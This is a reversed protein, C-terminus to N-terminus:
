NLPAASHKKVLFIYYLSSLLLAINELVKAIDVKSGAEAAFCGCNIDLGRLYAQQVAIYFMLMLAANIYSTEVPWFGVILLFGLFLELWPLWIALWRSLLPSIMRYNEITQAFLTPHIIKDISAYILIVGFFIRLIHYIWNEVTNLNSM